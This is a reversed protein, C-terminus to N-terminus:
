RIDYDHSYLRYLKITRPSYKERRKSPPSVNQNRSSAIDLRWMSTEASPTNRPSFAVTHGALRHVSSKKRNQGSNFIKQETTPRTNVNAHTAVSSTKTKIKKRGIAPRQTDHRINSRKQDPKQRLQAQRKKELM